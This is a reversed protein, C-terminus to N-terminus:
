GDRAEAPGSRGRGRLPLFPLELERDARGGGLLHAPRTRDTGEFLATGQGAVQAAHIEIGGVLRQAAAAHGQTDPMDAGAPYLRHLGRRVVALAQRDTAFPFAIDVAVQRVQGGDAIGGQLVVQGPQQVPPLQLRHELAVDPPGGPLEPRRRAPPDFQRQIDAHQSGAPPAQRYMLHLQLQLVPRDRVDELDGRLKAGGHREGEFAAALGIAAKGKRHGPRGTPQLRLADGQCRLHGGLLGEDGHGAGAQRLGLRVLRRREVPAVRFADVLQPDGAAAQARGEGQESRDQRRRLRGQRGLDPPESAFQARGAVPIDEQRLGKGRQPLGERALGVQLRQVGSPLATPLGAIGLDARRDGRGTIGGDLQLQPAPQGVGVPMAAQIGVGRPQQKRRDGVQGVQKQLAAGLGDALQAPPQLREGQRLQM